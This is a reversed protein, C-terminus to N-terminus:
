RKGARSGLRRRRSALMMTGVGGAIGLTPEPVAAGLPAAAPPAPFHTGFNAALTTFDFSNTTGDGNFDGTAWTKGTGGFNGALATFDFSNVNGDLNADGPLAATVFAGTPSYTLALSRTPSIVIGGVTDFHGTVSIAGIIQHSTYPVPNYGGILSLDARGALAATGLVTMRDFQNLGTGGLQFEAAGTSTQQYTNLQVQGAVAGAAFQLSGENQVLVALDAATIGSNLRLTSGNNNILAGGGSFTAGVQVVSLTNALRLNGTLTTSSANEFTAAGAIQISGTGGTVNVAGFINTPNTSRYRGGSAIRLTSASQFQLEFGNSFVERGTGVNVTGQFAFDANDRVELNATNASLSGTNTTGDWDNNNGATQVILTGTHEAEIRTNNIVVAAVFGDGNIGALLDNTITAGTLTGGSLDVLSSINTNWANTVNMTGDVDATGITGMDVISGTVNLVGNDALLNAGTDFDVNTAITGFGHLSHSAEAHLTGTGLVSGGVLTNPDSAANGGGLRLEPGTINVTGGIDLRATTRPGGATVNMTGNMNLPNGALVTTVPNLDSLDIRGTPNITWESAANDLNVTLVGTGTDSNISLINTGILNANGFNGMTAANITLPADIFITNGVIDNGDLDVTGGVMNFTTAVDFHATGGIALTGTGTFSNAASNFTSTGDLRLTGGANVVANMATFTGGANFDLTSNTGVTITGTVLCPNGNVNSVGTSAGTSLTGTIGWAGTSADTVSLTGGNLITNGTLSNDAGVGLNLDLTGANITIVNTANGAGDPNFDAQNVTVTVGSEVVLSATTSAAPLIFNAAAGITANANFIVTGNNTLTGGTMNYTADFQLAGDTDVVTITGGSQTFAGGRIFSTGRPSLLSVTGNNADISGSDLSWANAIDLVSNQALFMHGSFADFLTINIDLTQNRFVNVQGGGGGDLDIRGNADFTNITLTGAAPPLFIGTSAASLTGTNVFLRTNAPVGGDDLQISGHGTLEGGTAINISGTAAAQAIRVSGGTLELQGGNNIFIQDADLRAASGGVHLDPGTGGITVTGNVTLTFNNLSLDATNSMNVTLVTNNSGLTVINSTNFVVDDASTPEGNPTWKNPEIGDTWTTDGGQWTKVAASLDSPAAAAAALLITAGIAARARRSTTSRYRPVPHASVHRHM